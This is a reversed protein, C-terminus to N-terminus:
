ETLQIAYIQEELKIITCHTLLGQKFSFIQTGDAEFNLIREALM